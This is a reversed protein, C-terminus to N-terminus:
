RKKLVWFHSFGNYTPESRVVDFGLKDYLAEQEAKTRFPLDLAAGGRLIKTARGSSFAMITAVDFESHPAGNAVATEVVQTLWERHKDGVTATERIPENVVLTGGAPLRDRIATLAGEKSRDSMTYLVHNIMASGYRENEPIKSRPALYFPMYTFRDQGKSFLSMMRKRALSVALDDDLFTVSRTPAGEVMLGGLGGTGSGVDLIKGDRPLAGHMKDVIEHYMPSWYFVEYSRFYDKLWEPNDMMKTFARDIEAGLPSTPDYIQDVIERVRKKAGAPGLRSLPGSKLHKSEWAIRPERVIAHSLQELYLRCWELTLAFSPAAVWLQAFLILAFWHRVWGM